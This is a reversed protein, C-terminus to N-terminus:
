YPIFRTSLNHMSVVDVVTPFKQIIDQIKEQLERPSLSGPSQSELLRTQLIFM